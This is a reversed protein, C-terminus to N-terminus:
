KEKEGKNGNIAIKGIVKGISIFYSGGVEESTDLRDNGNLDEM